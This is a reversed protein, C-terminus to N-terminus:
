AYSKARGPYMAMLGSFTSKLLPAWNEIIQEPLPIKTRAMVWDFVPDEFRVGKKSATNRIKKELDEVGKLLLSDAWANILPSPASLAYFYYLIFAKLHAEPNEITKIKGSKLLFIQSSSLQLSAVLYEPWSKLVGSLTDDGLHLTGKISATKIEGVLRVKLNESLSIELAPAELRKEDIWRQEKASQKLSLSFLPSQDIGWENLLAERQGIKDRLEQKLAEGCIGPPLLNGDEQLLNELPSTLSSRLLKAKALSFSESKEEEFYIGFKKQLYFKWPHRSLLTLDSLSVVLEGQPLEREYCEPWSLSHVSFSSCPLSSIARCEISRDLSRLFEQVLFSSGVSKGEDPSLHRYSILLFEQASFLAQLFLYRDQDSSTPVYINEKSLLDLSSPLKLRPFSEEDMGMLFLARNPMMSGSQLSSFRVAHLHSPHIQGQLKQKLLNQIPALPFEIGPHAKEMEKLSQILGSLFSSAAMDAEDTLDCFLYKDALKELTQAWLKLDMKKQGLPLLDEQLSVVTGIFDELPDADSIEIPGKITSSLYLFRTLLQEWGQSTIPIESFWQRFQELRESNWHFKKYFSATEFLALLDEAEWDGKALSFLRYLGSFFFSKSGLSAGFIRYPIDTFVFEIFPAYSEIDPSFVSINSPVLGEKEILKLIVERLNEVERLRSSGALFIQISSDNPLPDRSGLNQGFALLDSQIRSLLSDRQYSPLSYDENIELDFQDLIKLTERGMRGWNALLPPAECWYDQWQKRLELPMGKKKWYRNWGKRERNTCLDDWYHMCPSFLYFSVSAMRCFFQIFLSPLFDFGFCHVPDSFPPNTEPLVQFPLRFDGKIFLRRFLSTQWDAEQNSEEFVKGGYQGYQLFLDTLHDSLEVIRKTNEKLYSCLDSNESQALERYIMLFLQVSSPIPLKKPLLFSLAEKLTLIKYGAVGQASSYSAMQQLLWQKLAGNPVLILRSALASRGDSIM